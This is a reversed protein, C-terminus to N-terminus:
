GRCIAELPRAVHDQIEFFSYGGAHRKPQLSRGAVRVQCADANALTFKLPVYGKLNWRAGQPLNEFKEIHGNVSVLRVSSTPADNLVLEAADASLHAYVESQHAIFGAVDVSKALDPVGMAAPLRVTRLDNGGRVRWGTATRAIVMTQFDLVKRAYDAVYVPTTEQDMAYAFVKDLSKMGAAKTTLYAHFYIDMPKLRRPSETFEFTEIVREYGYFPGRWNNTYVNENQNPAFVQYGTSRQIGLGEVQTLTSTSRTAKTDGGNFNLVGSARTAALADPGPVCDGTWFFMSVSKGPPALRSNIYQISGEIERDLDFQYGPLRLNYGGNPDVEGAKNWYFPHSYSHSAIAVNPARFIERAVNEAYSSMTPYLGNPSLEAEIVSLTMPLPYKNVVRDRVVEGALLNGPLESRSIFGDGDMHIMLMRSGSETTVDPMPSRPLRLAQQFFTFPDIIWRDGFNGPLSVVDHSALVYGGWPTLAAATQVDNARQLVLLPQAASHNLVFFDMARTSPEREFGFMPAKYAIQVPVGSPKYPGVSFGLKKGLDGEIAFSSTGLIALPVGDAIQQELWAQLVPRDSGSPDSDLWLLVGAYRGQLNVDPLHKADFYEPVYGLYNLPMAGFRLPEMDRFATQDKFVSHIVAIRRPIVEISGVGLTALDPTAVWPTLGLAQIRQATARALERNASPVYDIAVVPLGYASKVQQIQALLWDRDASSVERFARKSADFGQFLSEVVVMEVLAHTAPLIEFGRNFILRIGPFQAALGKVVAVTGAEQRARAEPTKTVLQYSDLTDLFFTRYGADWLPAVVREAFFTPWQPQSQDVVRSGWDKNEGLIWETPIQKAYSRSPQAEGVSVYAALRTRPLNAAKPDPVHDPDVVVLDFAQLEGMPPQKGYFFAIAPSDKVPQAWAAHFLTGFCILWIWVVIKLECRQYM